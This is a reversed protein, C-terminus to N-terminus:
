FCFNAISRPPLPVAGYLCDASVFIRRNEREIERQVKEWTDPHMYYTDGMKYIKPDATGRWNRPNKAWKRRIRVKKSRPFRFQVRPGELFRNTQIRPAPPIPGIKDMVSKIYSLYGQGMLPMAFSTTAHNTYNM